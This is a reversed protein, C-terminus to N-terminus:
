VPQWIETTTNRYFLLVELYCFQLKRSLKQAFCGYCISLLLNKDYVIKLILLDKLAVSIHRGVQMNKKLITCVCLNLLADEEARM